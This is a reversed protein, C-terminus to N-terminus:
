NAVPAHTGGGGEGLISVTIGSGPAGRLEVDLVNTAM